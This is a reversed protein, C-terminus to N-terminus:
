IAKSSQWQQVGCMMLALMVLEDWTDGKSGSKIMKDLEYCRKLAIQLSGTNLRKLAALYLGKRTNWVLPPKLINALAEGSEQRFSMSLLKKLERALLAVLAVLAGGENKLGTIINLVRQTEGQLISDILLFNNYRASATVYDKLMAATISGGQHILSLKELEQKAAYLNGEVFNALLWLAEKEVALQYTRARQALCQPLKDITGPWCPINVGASDLAKFWKAKQQNADLKKTSIVLLTDSNCKQPLEALANKEAASPMNEFRIDVIKKEAFLSLSETANDIHAWNFGKEVFFLNRETFGQKAAQERVAQAAEERLLREEGHIMYVPALQKNLEQPLREPYIKM